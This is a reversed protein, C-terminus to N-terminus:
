PAGGNVVVIVGVVLMGIAGMVGIGVALIKFLESTSANTADTAEQLVIQRRMRILNSAEAKGRKRREIPTENLATIALFDNRTKIYAMKDSPLQSPTNIRFLDEAHELRHPETIGFVSPTFLSTVSEGTKAYGDHKVADKYSMSGDYDLSIEQLADPSKFLPV